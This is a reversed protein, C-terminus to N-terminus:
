LKLNDVIRKVHILFDDYEMERKQFNCRTCCPVCNEKTYGENNNRRDIGNYYYEISAYKTSYAKLRSPECGCYHCNSEILSIVEELTLLYEKSLTKAHSRYSRMIENIAAEKIPIKRHSTATIKKGLKQRTEFALCGCSKLSGRTLSKGFAIKTNGCECVCHWYSHYEPYKRYYKIEYHSFGIVKLRGYVNGTLIKTKPRLKTLDEM